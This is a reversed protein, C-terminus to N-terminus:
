YRNWRAMCWESRFGLYEYGVGKNSNGSRAGSRVFTVQGTSHYAGKRVGNM